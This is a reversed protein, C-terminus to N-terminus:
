KTSGENLRDSFRTILSLYEPNQIRMVSMIAIVKKTEVDTLQTGNWFDRMLKSITHILELSYDNKVKCVVNFIEKRVDNRRPKSM